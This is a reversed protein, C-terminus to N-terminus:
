KGGALTLDSVTRSQVSELAPRGASGPTSEVVVYVSYETYPSLNDLTHTGNFNTVDKMTM